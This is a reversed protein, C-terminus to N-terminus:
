LQYLNERKLINFYYPLHVTINKRIRSYRRFKSILFLTIEKLVSYFFM